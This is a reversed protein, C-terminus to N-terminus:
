VFENEIKEWFIEPAKSCQRVFEEKGVENYFHLSGVIDNSQVSMGCMLAEGVSRCFPEYYEPVYYLEKHFNYLDPMMTHDVRGVFEVNPLSSIQEEYSGDQSWGAVVYNKSPNSKAENIFNDTGKLQHMFGVYLTKDTRVLGRDYFVEPDLPDPVVEMNQFYDYGYNQLFMQKHFNTLFFSIRCNEWLKKRANQTLYRNADHELRVHNDCGNFFDVINGYKQSMTELNSSIVVDYGYNILEPKSDFFVEVVTHGRRRGEEVIIANSRQAGGPTHQLGFDSVFLINM